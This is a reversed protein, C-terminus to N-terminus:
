CQRRRRVVKWSIMVSPGVMVVSVLGRHKAQLKPRGALPSPEASPQHGVLFLSRAAGGSGAGGSRVGASDDGDEKGGHVVGDGIGM